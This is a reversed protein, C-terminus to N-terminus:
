LPLGKIKGIWSFDRGAENWEEYTIKGGNSFWRYTWYDAYEYELEEELAEMMMDEHNGCILTTRSDNLVSKLTDLSQPGRDICDGLVYIRDSDKCFSQIQKWQSYCGHLDAVAYSSM